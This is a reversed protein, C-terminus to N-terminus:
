PMRLLLSRSICISVEMLQRRLSQLAEEMSDKQMCVEALRDESSKLGLESDRLSEELDSVRDRLRDREISWEIRAEGRLKDSSLVRAEAASLLAKLQDLEANNQEQSFLAKAAEEKAERQARKMAEVGEDARRQLQVCQDKLEALGREATRAKEKAALLDDRLESIESSRCNLLEKSSDLDRQFNM